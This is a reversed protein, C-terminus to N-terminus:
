EAVSMPVSLFGYDCFQSSADRLSVSRSVTINKRHQYEGRKIVVVAQFFEHYGYTETAEARTTEGTSTTQGLGVVGSVVHNPDNTRGFDPNRIGYLMTEAATAARRGKQALDALVYESTVCIDYYEEHAGEASLNSGTPFGKDGILLYSLWGGKEPTYSEYRSSDVSQWGNQNQWTKVLSDMMHAMPAPENLIANIRSIKNVAEPTDSELLTQVLSVTDVAGSVPDAAFVSSILALLFLM